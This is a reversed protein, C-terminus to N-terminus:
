DYKKIEVLEVPLGDPDAFFVCKCGTFSDIRIYETEVGKSRLESICAEIDTVTFALHRLGLAEPYSPRQPADPFTFLEILYDGNLALDVKWSDREERYVKRIITFGLVDVYFAISREIDSAIVAIHNVNNLKM